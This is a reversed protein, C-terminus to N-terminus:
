NYMPTGYTFYSSIYLIRDTKKFFLPNAASEKASTAFQSQMIEGDFGSPATVTLTNGNKSFSLGGNASFSYGSLVGNNDSLNVSLTGGNDTLEYTPANSQSMRTFTPIKHHNQVANVLANYHRNIADKQNAAMTSNDVAQKVRDYGAPPAVYNFNEDREGQTVEWTLIRAAIYLAKGEDTNLPSGTAGYDIYQFLRGLLTSVIMDGSITPTHLVNVYNNINLGEGASLPAGPELCYLMTDPSIYLVYFSNNGGITGGNWLNRAPAEDWGTNQLSVTVDAASATMPLAFLAGTIMLVSLLM